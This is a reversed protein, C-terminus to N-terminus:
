ESLYGWQEDIPFALNPDGRCNRGAYAYDEVMLLKDDLWYFFSAGYKVRPGGGGHLVMVEVWKLMHPDCERLETFAVMSEATSSEGLFIVSIYYWVRVIKVRWSLM